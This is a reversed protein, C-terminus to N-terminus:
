WRRGTQLVLRAHRPRAASGRGRVTATVAHELLLGHGYALGDWSHESAEIRLDATPWPDDGVPILVVGRHRARASLRRALNQGQAGGTGVLGTAVVVLDFGDLLAGAVAAVQDGPRPVMAFHESVVGMEIAALMGLDPMGVVAAWSGRAMAAVLLSLLLSTSGSGVAVTSGRSLGGLPLLAALEDLVPLVPRTAQDQATEEAATATTLGGPVKREILATLESVPLASVSLGEWSRAYM